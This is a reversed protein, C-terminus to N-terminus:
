IVPLSAVEFWFKKFTRIIELLGEFRVPKVIFCSAGLKYAQQLDEQSKSTTFIVIPIHWLDQHNKIEHIAERGDKKPMNLDLLILSPLHNKRTLYKERRLLYDMLEMGDEVFSLTQGAGIEEFAEKLMFRDDVDDEAILINPQKHM